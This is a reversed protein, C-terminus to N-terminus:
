RVRGISSVHERRGRCRLPLSCSSPPESRGATRRGDVAELFLDALSPPEFSFRTVEGVRRAEALVQGADVSADVLMRVRRRTAEELIM